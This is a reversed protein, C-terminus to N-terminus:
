FQTRYAVQIRGSGGNGAPGYYKTNGPLDVITGGGGGGGGSNPLGSSGSLQTLTPQNFGAQWSGGAGSGYSGSLAGIVTGDTGLPPYGIRFYGGGYGGGGILIPYSGSPGGFYAPLTIGVGGQGAYTLNDNSGTNGMGGGGAIADNTGGNNGQTGFIAQGGGGGGSAGNGEGTFELGGGSGGFYSATNIVPQYYYGRLDFTQQFSSQSAPAAFGGSIFVGGNGVYANFTSPVGYQPDKKVYQSVFVYGGAGGGNGRTYAETSTAPDRQLGQSGAGGGGVVLVEINAAGQTIEFSGSGSLFTHLTYSIGGTVFTEVIGGTARFPVYPEIPSGLSFNTNGIINLQPM